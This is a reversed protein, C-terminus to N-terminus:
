QKKVKEAKKEDDTGRMREVLEVLSDISAKKSIRCRMGYKEATDATQRGICAARVKSFNMGEAAKVFGEVTSSSTFVVCANRGSELEDKISVAIESAGCYVTRYIPLDCVSAGARELIPVLERNAKEARPLLIKQGRIKQGAIIEGLSVGDYLKPMVDAFIGCNELAKGTGEGIVAFKAHSLARIDVGKKRMKEFFIRVGAQSTFVIWDYLGIKEFSEELLRNEEIPVTDIVPLELVEAGKERLKEAMASILEKPRTLVVKMGSLPLKEYWGLKQALRCVNGVVILAPPRVAAEEAKRALTGITAVVRRQGATTGDQLVAAPMDPRMGAAELEEMITGLATVGMLFVLTGGAEALAKYHVSNEKGARVHGTIVHLSSAYDRHTVPIGNYAPVALPSTVGPVVEFPIGTKKLEELEEGGRGFLFPDGGKLRVVKKGKKAEAVLIRNIEGQPIPHHGATKGVNILEKGAGYKVVISKGVLCDYVIVDAGGLVRAAKITLLGEDGPGAGVLWVKGVSNKDEM